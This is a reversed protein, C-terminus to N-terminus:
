LLIINGNPKLNFWQSYQKGLKIRAKKTELIHTIEDNKNSKWTLYIFVKHIAETLTDNPVGAIQFESETFHETFGRLELYNSRVKIDKRPKVTVNVLVVWQGRECDYEFSPCPEEIFIKLPHLKDYMPQWVLTLLSLLFGLIDM